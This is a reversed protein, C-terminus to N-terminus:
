ADLKKRREVEEVKGLRGGIEEEVKPSLMSSSLSYSFYLLLLTYFWTARIDELIESDIKTSKKQPIVVWLLSSTWQRAHSLTYYGM